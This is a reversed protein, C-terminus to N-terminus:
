LGQQKLKDEVVEKVFMVSELMLTFMKLYHLGTIGLELFRIPQQIELFIVELLGMM